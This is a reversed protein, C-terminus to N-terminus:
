IFKKCKCKYKNESDFINPWLRELSWPLHTEIKSLNSQKTIHQYLRKYFDLPKNTICKKHIIYQAGSGYLFWKNKLNFFKDYVEKPSIEFRSWEVPREMICTDCLSYCGESFEYLDSLSEPLRTLTEILESYHTLPNGQLFITYDTLEKYNNVIHYLYTHAERGINPLKIVKVNKVTVDDRYIPCNQQKANGKEYIIKKINSINTSKIWDSKECFHSIVIEFDSM